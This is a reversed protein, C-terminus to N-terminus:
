STFEHGGVLQADTKDGHDIYLVGCTQCNDSHPVDSDAEYCSWCTDETRPQDEPYPNDTYHPQWDNDNM